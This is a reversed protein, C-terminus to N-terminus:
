RQGQVDTAIHDTPLDLVYIKARVDFKSIIGILGGVASQLPPFVVSVKEVIPLIAKFGNWAKESPTIGKDTTSRVDDPREGTSATPVASEAISAGGLADHESGSSSGSPITPQIDASTGFDSTSESSKHTRKSVRFFEAVAKRKRHPKSPDM